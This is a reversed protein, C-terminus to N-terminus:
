NFNIVKKDIIEAGRVCDGRRGSITLELRGGSGREGNAAELRRGGWM